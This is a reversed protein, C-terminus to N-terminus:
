QSWQHPAWGEPREYPAAAEIQADVTAIAHRVAVPWESGTDQNSQAHRFLKRVWRWDRATTPVVSPEILDHIASDNSMFYGPGAATDGNDDYEPVLDELLGWEALAQGLLCAPKGLDEPSCLGDAVDDKDWRYHCDGTREYIYHEGRSTSVRLLEAKAEDWTLRREDTFTTM